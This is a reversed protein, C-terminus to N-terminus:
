IARVYDLAAALAMESTQKGLIVEVLMIREVPSFFHIGIFNGPRRSMEALSTIPQTSTNSGFVAGGRDRSGGGRYRRGQDQSGRVSGRRRPQLGQARRLGLDGSHARAARRARGQDRSGQRDARGGIKGFPAKGKDAAEQDRDILVVNLGAMATVYAIGAGM